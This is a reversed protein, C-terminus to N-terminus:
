AAPMAVAEIRGGRERLALRSIGDGSMAFAEVAELDVEIDRPDAHRARGLRKAHAEKACWHRLWERPQGAAPVAAIRAAERPTLMDPLPPAEDLPEVDVGVPAASAAILCLPARGAVSLHWGKPSLVSPAGDAGRGFLIAGPPVGAIRGLLARTLRRRLLRHAADPTAAFDALDRESHPTRALTAAAADGDLRVSWVVPRGPDPVLRDLPGDHWLPVTLRDEGAAGSLRGM